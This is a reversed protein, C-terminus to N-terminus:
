ATPHTINTGEQSEFYLVNWKEQMWYTPLRGMLNVKVSDPHVMIIVGGSVLM